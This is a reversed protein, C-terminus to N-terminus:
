FKPPPLQKPRARPRKIRQYARSEVRRYKSEPEIEQDLLITM